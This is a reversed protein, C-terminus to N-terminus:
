ERWALVALGPEVVFVVYADATSRGEVATVDVRYAPPETGPVVSLWGTVGEGLGPWPGLSRPAAGPGSPGGAEALALVLGAHAASRAIAAQAASRAALTTLSTELFMGAALAGLAVLLMLVAVIVFGEERGHGRPRPRSPRSRDLNM